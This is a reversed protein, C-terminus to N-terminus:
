SEKYAETFVQRALREGERRLSWSSQRDEKTELPSEPQSTLLLSVTFRSSTGGFWAFRQNPDVGLTGKVIIDENASTLYPARFLFNDLQENIQSVSEESLTTQIHHSFLHLTEGAEDRTQLLVETEYNRGDRAIMSHLEGLQLVTFEDPLPFLNSVIPQGMLQNITREDLLDQEFLSERSVYAARLQNRDDLVVVAIDEVESNAELGRAIEAIRTQLSIDVTSLAQIRGQIVDDQGYEKILAVYIQQLLTKLGIDSIMQHQPSPNVVPNVVDILSVKSQQSLEDSTILGVARLSKLVGNRDLDATLLSALHAAQAIELESSKRGYWALSAAEVGYSNRGLPVQSLYEELISEKPHTRELHVVSSIETMLEIRNKPVGSHLRVYLQTISPTVSAFNGNIASVMLPWTATKEINLYGPDLVVLIADILIPSMQELTVPIRNPELHFRGIENGLRDFVVTDIDPTPYRQFPSVGVTRMFIGFGLIAGVLVVYFGVPWILNKSTQIDDLFPDTM